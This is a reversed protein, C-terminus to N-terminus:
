PMRTTALRFDVHKERLKLYKCESPSIEATTGLFADTEGPIERGGVFAASFSDYYPYLPRLKMWGPYGRPVSFMKRQEESM